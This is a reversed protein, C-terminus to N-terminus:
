PSLPPTQFRQHQKKQALDRRLAVVREPTRVPIVYLPLKEEVQLEMVRAIVLDLVEDPDDLDVTTTLHVAEPDDEGRSVEFTATPYRHGIAGELEKIARRMQASMEQMEENM